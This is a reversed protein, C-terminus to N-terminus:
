EARYYTLFGAQTTQDPLVDTTQGFDRTELVWYRDGIVRVPKWSIVQKINGFLPDATLELSGEARITWTYGVGGLPADLRQWWPTPDSM